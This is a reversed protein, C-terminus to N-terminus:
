FRQKIHAHRPKGVVMATWIVFSRFSSSQLVRSTFKNLFRYVRLYNKNRLLWLIIFPLTIIEYFGLQIPTGPIQGLVLFTEFM